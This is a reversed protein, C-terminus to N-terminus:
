GRWQIVDNNVIADDFPFAFDGPLGFCDTIGLKALRSVAYEAVTMTYGEKDRKSNM